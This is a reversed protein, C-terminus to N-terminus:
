NALAAALVQPVLFSHLNLSPVTVATALINLGPRGIRTCDAALGIRICKPGLMLTSARLASLDEWRFRVADQGSGGPVAKTSAAITSFRGSQVADEMLHRKVHEDIRRRKSGTSPLAAGQRHWDTEGWIEVNQDIHESVAFILVRLWAACTPCSQRSADVKCLKEWLTVQPAVDQTHTVQELVSSIHPCHRPGDSAPCRELDASPQGLSLEVAPAAPMTLELFAKLVSLCRQKQVNSRMSRGWHVLLALLGASSLWHDQHPADAFDESSQASRKIALRSKGCHKGEEAPVGLIAHIAKSWAAWGDAIHHALPRTRSIQYGAASVVYSLTWRLNLDSPSSSFAKWFGKTTQGDSHTCHFSLGVGKSLDM